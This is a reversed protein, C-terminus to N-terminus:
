GRKFMRSLVNAKPFLEIYEIFLNTSSQKGEQDKNYEKKNHILIKDENVFECRMAIYYKTGNRLKKRFKDYVNISTKAGKYGYFIFNTKILNTSYPYLRYTINRINNLVSYDDNFDIYKKYYIFKRGINEDYLDKLKRKENDM